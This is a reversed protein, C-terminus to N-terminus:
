KIYKEFIDKNLFNYNIKIICIWFNDKGVILKGVLSARSSLKDLYASALKLQM